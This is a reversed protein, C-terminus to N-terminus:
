FREPTSFYAGASSAVLYTVGDGYAGYYYAIFREEPLWQIGQLTSRFLEEDLIRRFTGDAEATILTNIVDQHVLRDGGNPPFSLFSRNFLVDDTLELRERTEPNTAEETRPHETAETTDSELDYIFWDHTTFVDSYCGIGYLLTSAEITVSEDEELIETAVWELGAIERSTVPIVGEVPRSRETPAADVEHGQTFFEVADFDTEDEYFEVKMQFRQEDGPQLQYDLPVSSGCQNVLFGVGEGILAEDDDYLEAFLQVDAFAVDTENAITGTMVQQEVGFADIVMNVSFQEVTLDDSQAWVTSVSLWVMFFGSLIRQM